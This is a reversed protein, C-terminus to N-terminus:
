SEGFLEVGAQARAIGALAEFLEVGDGSRRWAAGDHDFHHGGNKAAVWIQRAPTQRNIIVQSGNDFRLTLVGGSNEYDLDAGGADIAEEIRLLTEDALRQFESETM